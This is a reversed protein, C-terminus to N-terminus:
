NGIFIFGLIEIDADYEHDENPPIGTVIGSISSSFLKGGEIDNINKTKELYKMGYIKNKM